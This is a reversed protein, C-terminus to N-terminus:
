RRRPSRRAHWGATRHRLSIQRDLDPAVREANVPLGDRSLDNLDSALREVPDLVHVPHCREEHRDHAGSVGPQERGTQARQTRPADARLVREEGVLGDVADVVRLVPRAALRDAEDRAPVGARHEPLRKRRAVGAHVARTAAEGLAKAAVPQAELLRVLVEPQRDGLRPRRAFAVAEDPRDLQHVVLGARHTNAEEVTHLVDHRVADRPRHLRRLAHERVGVLAALLEGGAEAHEREAGLRDVAGLRALREQRRGDPLRAQVGLRDQERRALELAEAAALRDLVLTERPGLPPGVEHLSRDVEVAPARRAHSRTASM